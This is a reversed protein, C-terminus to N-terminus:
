TPRASGPATRTATSPGAPRPSAGGAPHARRRVGQVARREGAINTRIDLTPDNEATAPDTTSLLHLVVDQGDVASRVDSLNLFDGPSLVTVGDAAFQPDPRGFRDFATVTHGRAALADVVHSGIFGNGGIVLCRAM